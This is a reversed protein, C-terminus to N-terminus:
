GAPQTQMKLEKNRLNLVNDNNILFYHHTSSPILSGLSNQYKFTIKNNKLSTPYSKIKPFTLSCWLTLNQAPEVRYNYQVIKFCHKIKGNKEGM